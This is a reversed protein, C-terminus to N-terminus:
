TEKVLHCAMKLSICDLFILKFYYCLCRGPRWKRSNKANARESQRSTLIARSRSDAASM